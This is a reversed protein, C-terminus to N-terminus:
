CVNCLFLACVGECHATRLAGEAIDDFDVHGDAAADEPRWRAADRSREEAIWARLTAEDLSSTLSSADLSVGLRALLAEDSEEEDSVAESDAESESAADAEADADANAAADPNPPSVPADPPPPPADADAADADPASAFFPPAGPPLPPPPPLTTADDVSAVCGGGGGGGGGSRQERWWAAWGRAGPQGIRPAGARWFAEFARVRAALTGLHARTFYDDSADDHADRGGRPGFGFCAFELLAQLRGLAAEHAGAQAEIRCAELSAECLAADLEAVDAATAGAARRRRKEASLASCANVCAAIRTSPPAGSAALAARRARWLRPAGPASRLAREWRMETVDRAEAAASTSLLAVLLAECGPHQGLARELICIQARPSARAHPYASLMPVFALADCFRLVRL